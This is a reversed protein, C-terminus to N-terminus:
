YDPVDVGLAQPISEPGLWKRLEGTSSHRLYIAGTWPNEFRDSRAFLIWGDPGWRPSYDFYGEEFERITNSVSDAVFVQLFPGKWVHGALLAEGPSWSVHGVTTFSEGGLRLPHVTENPFARTNGTEPDYLDLFGLDTRVLLRGGPGAGYADSILRERLVAITDSPPFYFLGQNERSGAFIGGSDAWLLSRSSGRFFGGDTSLQEIRHTRLNVRAMLASDFYISKKDPSFTPNWVLKFSDWWRDVRPLFSYDSPDNFPAVAM